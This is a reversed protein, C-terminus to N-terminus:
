APLRGKAKLVDAFGALEAEFHKGEGGKKGTVPQRVQTQSLTMVARKNAEPKLCAKDFGVGCFSLLKRTEDEQNEILAEYQLDHVFGPMLTQWFEMVDLYLAYYEGLDSLNTSYPIYDLFCNRYISFAHDLPDRKVHIVRAHPFMLRILGIVWYNGLSKDTAYDQGPVLAALAARYLDSLTELQAQELDAVGALFPKGTIAPLANLVKTSMIQTEDGANIDPHCSLIQEVLTSGCRPLGVIFIPTPKKTTEPLSKALLNADFVSKITNFNNLFNDKWEGWLQSQAQNAQHLHQLFKKDDNAQEFVYALAYHLQAETFADLDNKALMERARTVVEDDQSLPFANALQRFAQAAPPTLQCAKRLFAEADEMNGVVMHAFGLNRWGEANEPAAGTASEFCKLAAEPQRTRQYVDGLRLWVVFQQGDVQLAKRFFMEANAMDDVQVAVQGMLHLADVNDPDTELVRGYVECAERLHGQRQLERGKALEDMM